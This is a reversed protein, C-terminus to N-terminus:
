IYPRSPSVVGQLATLSGIPPLGLEIRCRAAPACKDVGLGPDPGPNPVCQRGLHSKKAKITQDKASRLVKKAM